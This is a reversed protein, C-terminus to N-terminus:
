FRKGISIGVRPYYDGILDTDLFNRGIGGFIEGIWGNKTLFKGGIEIGVGFGTKTSNVNSITGFFAPLQEYRSFLSMHSGVFFGAAPKKGFFIRYSPTIAYRYDNDREAAVRISIGLSSEENLLYQYSIEPAGDISSAVNLSLEHRKDLNTEQSWLLMGGLMYLSLFSVIMKPAFRNKM